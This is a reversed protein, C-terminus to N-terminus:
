PSLSKEAGAQGWSLGARMAVWTTHASDFIQHVQFVLTSSHSTLATMMNLEIGLPRPTMEGCYMERCYVVRSGHSLRATIRDEVRASLGTFGVGFLMEDGQGGREKSGSTLRPSQESTDSRTQRQHYTYFVDQSAQFPQLNPIYRHLYTLVGDM